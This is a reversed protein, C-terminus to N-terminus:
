LASRSRAADGARKVLRRYTGAPAGFSELTIIIAVAVVGYQRVLPDILGILHEIETM